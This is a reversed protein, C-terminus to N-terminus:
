APVTQAWFELIWRHEPAVHCSSLPGWLRPFALLEAQFHRQAAELQRREFRLTQVEAALVKVGHWLADLLQAAKLFQVQAPVPDSLNGRKSSDEKADRDQIQVAVLDTKGAGLSNM